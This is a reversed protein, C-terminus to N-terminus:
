CQIVYGTNEIEAPRYLRVIKIAWPYNMRTIRSPSTLDSAKIVKQYNRSVM